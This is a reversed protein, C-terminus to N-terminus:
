QNHLTNERLLRIWKGSELYWKSVLSLWGGIELKLKASTRTRASLGQKVYKSIFDLNDRPPKILLIKNYDCTNEIILQM